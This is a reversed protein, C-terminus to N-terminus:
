LKVLPVGDASQSKLYLLYEEDEERKARLWDAESAGVSSPTEPELGEFATGAVLCGGGCLNNRPSELLPMQHSEEEPTSTIRPMAKSIDEIDFAIQELLERPSGKLPQTDGALDQVGTLAALLGPRGPGPHALRSAFPLRPMRPVDGDGEEGTEPPECLEEQVPLRPISQEGWGRSEARADLSKLAGHPHPGRLKPNRTKPCNKLEPSKTKPKQNPTELKSTRTLFNFSRQRLSLSTWCRPTGPQRAGRHRGTVVWTELLQTKVLRWKPHKLAAELSPEVLRDRGVFEGFSPAVQYFFSLGFVQPM